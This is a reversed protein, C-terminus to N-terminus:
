FFKLDDLFQLNKAPFSFSFMEAFRQQLSM